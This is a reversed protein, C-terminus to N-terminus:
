RSGMLDPGSCHPDAKDSASLMTFSNKGQEIQFYYGPMPHAVKGDWREAALEMQFHDKDDFCGMVPGYNFLNFMPGETNKRSRSFAEHKKELVALQEQASWKQADSWPAQLWEDVFDRGNKAIPQVRAIQGNAVHYRYIGARTMVASEVTGVELRLEFGDSTRKMRPEIEDRVNGENTHMMVKTAEKGKDPELVDLDFGSWRSTCWPHGHAVALAFGNPAGNPILQFEFFDGFAGGVTEYDGAQWLLERRWGVDHLEYVILVNDDGCNVGFSVQVSIIRPEQSLTRVKLGLARGYVQDPNGNLTDGEVTKWMEEKNARLLDALGSEISKEEGTSSSCRIFADVAYSISAKFERIDAQIAPSVSTDMGDQGVKVALLRSQLEFVRGAAHQLSDQSCRDDAHLPVVAFVTM